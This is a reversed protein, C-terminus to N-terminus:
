IICVFILLTSLDNDWQKLMDRDLAAAKDNYLEWPTTTTSPQTADVVETLRRSRDFHIYGDNKLPKNFAM